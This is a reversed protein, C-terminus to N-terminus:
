LKGELATILEEHAHGDVGYEDAEACLVEAEEQTLVIVIGESSLDANLQKRVEM